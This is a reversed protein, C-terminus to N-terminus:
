IFFGLILLFFGWTWLRPRVLLVFASVRGDEVQEARKAPGQSVALFLSAFFSEALGLFQFVLVLRM